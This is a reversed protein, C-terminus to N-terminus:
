DGNNKDLAVFQRDGTNYVIVSRCSQDKTRARHPVDKPIRVTDGAKLTMWQQGVLHECSGEVVHLYEASNPHLHLPNEQHPKIFVVGFTMEASPDIKDNMLWRIWGWPFEQVEVTDFEQVTFQTAAPNKPKKGSEAVATTVVASAVVAGAALLVFFVTRALRSQLLMM